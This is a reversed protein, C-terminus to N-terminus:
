KKHGQNPKKEEILLNTVFFITTLLMTLMEEVDTLIDGQGTSGFVVDFAIVFFGLFSLYLWM